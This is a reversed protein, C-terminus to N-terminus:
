GSLVFRKSCYRDGYLTAYTRPDIRDNSVNVLYKMPPLKSLDLDVSWTNTDGSGQLVKVTGSAGTMSGSFDKTGTNLVIEYETPFVQFLLETGPQLSTTGTITRTKNTLTDPLADIMISQCPKDDAAQSTLRDSAAELVVLSATGFTGEKGINEPRITDPTVIVEYNDPIFETSDVAFSWQSVGNEGSSITIPGSRTFGEKVDQKRAKPDITFVSKRSQQTVLYILGTDKPLNTTGTILIKDGRYITGPHDITIFDIQHNANIRTLKTPDSTTNTLMFRSTALLDGRPYSLNVTNMPYTKVLYEGPPIEATNLACSWTNTIGTGRVIFADTAGVPKDNGSMPATTFIDLGLRTGAPLNTTGTIVVLDGAAHDPILDIAAMPFITFSGTLLIGIFIIVLIVASIIGTWTLYEKKM